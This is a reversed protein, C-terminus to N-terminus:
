KRINSLLLLSVIDWIFHCLILVKINRYKQYYCAFVFGIFMPGIVNLVTGWRIHALGFLVSSIIIPWVASKSLLRLRSMLYGRFILEEVVAATFSIFVKLWLDYHAIMYLAEAQKHLGLYMVLRSIISVGILLTGLIGAVSAAYFEITGPQEPWLLLPQKERRTVYLYIIGLWAWYLFRSVIISTVSWESEGTATNVARSIVSVVFFFILMLFLGQIIIKREPNTSPQALLM